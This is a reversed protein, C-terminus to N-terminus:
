VEEKSLWDTRMVSTPWITMNGVAAEVLVRGGDEDEVAYFAIREDGPDRWKPRIYVRDGKNILKSM